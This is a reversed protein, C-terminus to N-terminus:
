FSKYGKYYGPVPTYKIPDQTDWSDDPGYKDDLGFGVGTPRERQLSQRAEVQSRRVRERSGVNFLEGAMRHSRPERNPSNYRREVFSEARRELPSRSLNSM